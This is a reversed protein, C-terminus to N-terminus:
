IKGIHIREEDFRNIYKFDDTNEPYGVAVVAFPEYQSPISLISAVSDMRAAYPYTGCWCTGIGMSRAALLANQIAASLDQPYMNPATLNTKDTLFVIVKSAQNVFRYSPTSQALQDLQEKAEVVLFHWPQQNRASPAQMAFALIEKIQDITVEQKSYKRISRRTNIVEYAKM